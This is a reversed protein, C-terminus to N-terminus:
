FELDSLDGNEALANKDVKEEILLSLAFEKVDPEYDSMKIFSIASEKGNQFVLKEVFERIKEKSVNM